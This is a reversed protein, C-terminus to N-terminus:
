IWCLHPPAHNMTEDDSAVHPLPAKIFVEVKTVLIILSYILVSIQGWYPELDDPRCDGEQANNTYHRNYM